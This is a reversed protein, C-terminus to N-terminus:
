GGAFVNPSGEIMEGADASDGVRACELGAVFVTSSGENVQAVHPPCLPAPPFRHSVTKDTRRAVLIGNCFVTSQEPEDLQTISDCVHGTSLDDGERCVAPM